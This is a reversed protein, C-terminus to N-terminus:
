EAQAMLTDAENKLAILISENFKKESNQFANWIELKIDESKRLNYLNDSSFQSSLTVGYRILIDYAQRVDEWRKGSWKFQETTLVGQWTNGEKDECRPDAGAAFLIDIKQLADALYKVRPVGDDLAYRAWVHLCTQNDFSRKINIDLTKEKECYQKISYKLLMPTRGAHCAQHLISGNMQDRQDLRIGHKVLLQAMRATRVSIIFSCDAIYPKNTEPNIYDELQKKAEKYDDKFSAQTMSCELSRILSKEREKKREQAMEEFSSTMGWIGCVFGLNLGILSVLYKKM